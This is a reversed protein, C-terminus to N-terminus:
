NWWSSPHDKDGFSSGRVVFSFTSPDVLPALFIVILFCEHLSLCLAPHVLCSFLAYRLDHDLADSLCSFITYKRVLVLFVLIIFTSTDELTRL